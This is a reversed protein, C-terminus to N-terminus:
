DMTMSLGPGNKRRRRVIMNREAGQRKRGERDTLGCTRPLCRGSRNAKLEYSVRAGEALSTYVAKQVASIHVFVDQGGEEPQIFGFGKTPNFWKVTGM